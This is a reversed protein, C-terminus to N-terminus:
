WFPQKLKKDCQSKVVRYLPDKDLADIAFQLEKKVINKGRLKKSIEWEKLREIVESINKNKEKYTPNNKVKGVEELLDLEIFDKIIDYCYRRPIGKTGGDKDCLIIKQLIKRVDSGSIRNGAMQKKIKVYLYAYVLPIQNKVM